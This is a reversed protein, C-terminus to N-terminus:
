LGSDRITDDIFQSTDPDSTDVTLQITFVFLARQLEPWPMALFMEKGYRYPMFRADKAILDDLTEDLQREREEASVAYPRCLYCVILAPFLLDGRWYWESGGCTPCRPDPDFVSVTTDPLGPCTVMYARNKLPYKVVALQPGRKATNVRVVRGPETSM